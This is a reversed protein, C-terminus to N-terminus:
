IRLFAAHSADFYEDARRLCGSSRVPWSTRAPCPQLVSKATLSAILRTMDSSWERFNIGYSEDLKKLTEERFKDM